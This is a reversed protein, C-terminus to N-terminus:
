PGKKMVGPQMYRVQWMSARGIVIECNETIQYQIWKTDNMRGDVVQLDTINRDHGTGSILINGSYPDQDEGNQLGRKFEAM